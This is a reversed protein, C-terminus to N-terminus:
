GRLDVQGTGAAIEGLVTVTEGAQELLERAMEADERRVIVTMGIGCNFTRLLDDEPVNGERQLWDFVAPRTWSRESLVAELRKGENPLHHRVIDEQIDDDGLDVPTSHTRRDSLIVAEPMDRDDGERAQARLVVVEEGIQLRVRINRLAGQWDSDLINELDDTLELPSPPFGRLPLDEPVFIEPRSLDDVLQEQFPPMQGGDQPGKTKADQLQVAVAPDDHRVGASAVNQPLLLPLHDPFEEGRQERERVLFANLFEQGLQYSRRRRAM